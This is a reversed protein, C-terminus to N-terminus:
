GASTGVTKFDGRSRAVALPLVKMLKRGRRIDAWNALIKQAQRSGTRKHYEIALPHVWEYDVHNCEVWAVSTSHLKAPVERHPDYIVLEGGTMGSGIENEVPGLILVRGRTM